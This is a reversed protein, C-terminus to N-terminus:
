AALVARRTGPAQTQAPTQPALAAAIAAQAAAALSARDQGAQPQLAPCYILEVDLTREKLLRWLHSTLTQEGIFPAIDEGDATRGYRLAVPQVPCGAALAAAFLRPQFRLVTRGDTTTGEPFVTVRGRKLHESLAHILHRTGGAGRRLYFTGAATALPGALPWDRVEAKSVFRTEVNAVIVPIDLWSVHNAVLMRAEPAPHGFRRVRVHLIALLQANWWGTLRERPLRRGGPLAVLLALALGVLLHLLVRAARLVARLTSRGLAPARILQPM